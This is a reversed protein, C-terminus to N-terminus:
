EAAREAAHHERDGVHHDAADVVRSRQDTLHAADGRRRHLRVVAASRSAAFFSASASL